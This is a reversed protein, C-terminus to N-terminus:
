VIFVGFNAGSVALGHTHDWLSAAFAHARADSMFLTRCAHPPSAVMSRWTARAAEGRHGAAWLGRASLAFYAAYAGRQRAVHPLAGALTAPRDWMFRRAVRRLAASHYGLRQWEQDDNQRGAERQRFLVCPVPVFGVPGAAAVRLHWEWDEDAILTEDLLGVRPIASARVVTAGIQPYQRLFQPFFDGVGPALQPWPESRVRREGDTNVVQGICAVLAPDAQLAALQARLAEPTWLDDDDLFALFEGTAARIGANRAAAPGLAPATVYRAGSALAVAEASRSTSNDSVIVELQIDPGGVARISALAEQLLGPRDRTPVIVSVRYPGSAAATPAAAKSRKRWRQGARLGSTSLPSTAM